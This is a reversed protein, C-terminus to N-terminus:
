QSILEGIKIDRIFKNFNIVMWDMYDHSPSHHYHEDNLSDNSIIIELDLVNEHIYCLRLFRTNYLIDTKYDFFSRVGNPNFLHGDLDIDINRKVEKTNLSMIYSNFWSFCLDPDDSKFLLQLDADPHKTKNIKILYFM